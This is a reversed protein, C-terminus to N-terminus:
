KCTFYKPYKDTLKLFVGLSFFNILTLYLLQNTLSRKFQSFVFVPLGLSIIPVAIFRITSPISHKKMKNSAVNAIKASILFLFTFAAGHIPHLSVISPRLYFVKRGLWVLSGSFGCVFTIDFFQQKIQSINIMRM